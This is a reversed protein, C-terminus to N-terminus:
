HECLNLERVNFSNKHMTREKMLELRNDKMLKGNYSQQPIDKTSTIKKDPNILWFVLLLRSQNPKTSSMDIRHIHSNPFAIMTGDKTITKGLPVIGINLFEELGRHQNQYTNMEIFEGEEQTYRRKFKLESSLYPDQKLTCSATMVINEHSMGEVHWAGELTDKKNFDIKVIKTIVQLTQDLLTFKTPKKEKKKNKKDKRERIFRVVSDESYLKTKNIQTWIDEFQPLIFEFLEEIKRYLNTQTLPLNNIYSKIKCKGKNDIEFESPLWQFKSSEYPRGWYDEKGKYHPPSKHILPYVSPHVIDIIKGNSGPHYDVPIGKSYNIILNAISKTLTSPISKTIVNSQMFPLLKKNQFKTHYDILTKARVSHFKDLIDEAKDFMSQEADGSLKHKRILEYMRDDAKQKFNVYEAIVKLIIKMFENMIFLPKKTSSKLTKKSKTLTSSKTPNSDTVDVYGKKRKENIRKNYEDKAKETSSFKLTKEQMSGNKKGFKVIITNNTLNIIWIKSDTLNHSYELKVSPM